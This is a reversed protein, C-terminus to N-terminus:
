NNTTGNTLKLEKIEINKIPYNVYSEEGTWIALKDGVKANEPITFRGAWIWRQFPQSDLVYGEKSIYWKLFDQGYDEFEVIYKTNIEIEIPSMNLIEKKIEQENKRIKKIAM